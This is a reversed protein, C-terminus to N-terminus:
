IFNFFGALVRCVIFGPRAGNAQGPGLTQRAEHGLVSCLCSCYVKQTISLIFFVRKEGNFTNAIISCNFLLQIIAVIINM